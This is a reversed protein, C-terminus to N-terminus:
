HNDGVESGVIPELCFPNLSTRLTMSSVVLQFLRDSARAKSELSLKKIYYEFQGYHVRLSKVCGAENM